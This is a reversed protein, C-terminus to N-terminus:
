KTDVTVNFLEMDDKLSFLVVSQCVFKLDSNADGFVIPKTPTWQAKM